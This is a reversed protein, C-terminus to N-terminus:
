VVQHRFTFIFNLGCVCPVNCICEWGVHWWTLFELHTIRGLLHLQGEADHM